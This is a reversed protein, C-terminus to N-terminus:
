LRRGNLPVTDVMRCAKAIRRGVPLRSSAGMNACNSVPMRMESRHQSSISSKPKLVVLTFILRPGLHRPSLFYPGGTCRLCVSRREQAVKEALIALLTWTRGKVRRISAEQHPMPCAIM